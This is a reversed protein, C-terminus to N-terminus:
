ISLSAKEIIPGSRNVYGKFGVRRIGTDVADPDFDVPYTPAQAPLGVLLGKNWPQPHHHCVPCVLM